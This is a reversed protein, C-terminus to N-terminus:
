TKDMSKLFVPLSLCHLIKQSVKVIQCPVPSTLPDHGAGPLPTHLHSSLPLPPTRFPCPPLAIPFSYLYFFFFFILFYFIFYFLFSSSPPFPLSLLLFLSLSLLPLLLLSFHSFSFIFSITISSSFHFLSCSPFHTRTHRAHTRWSSLSSIIWPLKLFM